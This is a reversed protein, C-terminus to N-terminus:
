MSTTTAIWPSSVGRRGGRSGSSSRATARHCRSRPRPTRVPRAVSARSRRRARASSGGPRGAHGPRVRQEAARHEGDISTAISTRGGSQCARAAVPQHLETREAHQERDDPDPDDAREVEVGPEEQPEQRKVASPAAAATPRRGSSTRSTPAITTTWSTVAPRPQGLVREGAPRDGVHEVPDVLRAPARAGDVGRTSGGARTGCRTRAHRVRPLLHAVAGHRHQKPAAGCSRAPARRRRSTGSGSPAGPRALVAHEPRRHRGAAPEAGRRRRVRRARHYRIGIRRAPQAGVRPPCYTRARAECMREGSDPGRTGPGRRPPGPPVPRAARDAVVPQPAAGAPVRRGRAGLYGVAGRVRRAHVVLAPDAPRADIADREAAIARQDVVQGAVTARRRRSSSRGSARFRRGRRSAASRPRSSASVVLGAARAPLPHRRQDPARRGGRRRRLTVVSIGSPWRAVPVVLRGTLAPEAADAGAAGLALLVLPTLGVNLPEVLMTMAGVVAFGALPGRARRGALVLWALFAAFGLIGTTTLVEVLFNHADAFLVDPGEYRAFTLSRRPTVHRAQTRGPGYGLLPRDGIAEIAAQWLQVRPGLGNSPTPM